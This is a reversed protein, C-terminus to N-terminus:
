AGHGHRSNENAHENRAVAAKVDPAGITGSPSQSVKVLKVVGDEVTFHIKDFPRLGVEDRIAKPITVRGRTTVGALYAM